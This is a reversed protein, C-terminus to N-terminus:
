DDSVVTAEDDEEDDEYYDYNYDYETSTDTSNDYYFYSCVYHIGAGADGYATGMYLWNDDEDEYYDYYYDDNDYYYDDDTGYYDDDTYYDTTNTNAANDDAPVDIGVEEKGMVVGHKVILIALLSILTYDKM